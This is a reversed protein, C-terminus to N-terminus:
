FGFLLLLSLVHVASYTNLINIISTPSIIIISNISEGELIVQYTHDEEKQTKEENEMTDRNAFSHAQFKLTQVPSEM